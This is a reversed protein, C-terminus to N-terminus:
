NLINPTGLLRKLIFLYIEYLYLGKKFYKCRSLNRDFDTFLSDLIDIFFGVVLIDRSRSFNATICYRPFM